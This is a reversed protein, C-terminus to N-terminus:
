TSPSQNMSVPDYGSRGTKDRSSSINNEASDRPASGVSQEGDLLAVEKELVSFIMFLGFLIAGIPLGVGRYISDGASFGVTFALLSITLCIHKLKM